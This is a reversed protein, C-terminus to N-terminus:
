NCPIEPNHYTHGSVHRAKGDELQKLSPELQFEGDRSVLYRDPNMQRDILKLLPASTRSQGEIVFEEASALFIKLM